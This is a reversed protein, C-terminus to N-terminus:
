RGGNQHGVAGAATGHRGEEGKAVRPRLSPNKEKEGNFNTYVYLLTWRKLNEGKKLSEM